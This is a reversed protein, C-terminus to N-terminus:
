PQLHDQLQARQKRFVQRGPCLIGRQEACWAEDGKCEFDGDACTAEGHEQGNPLASIKSVWGAEDDGARAVDEEEEDDEVALDVERSKLSDDQALMSVKVRMMSAKPFQLLKSTNTSNGGKAKPLNAEFNVVQTEGKELPPLEKHISTALCNTEQQCTM